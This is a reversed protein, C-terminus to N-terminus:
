FTLLQILLRRLARMDEQVWSHIIKMDRFFRLRVILHALLVAPIVILTGPVVDVGYHQLTFVASVANLFLYPIGFLLTSPSLRYLFYVTAVVWGIHMSPFATINLISPPLSADLSLRWELFRGITPNPDYLALVEQIERPISLPITPSFFTVSPSMAPFVYWLPGSVVLCLACTLLWELLLDGRRVLFFLFTLLLILGLSEYVILLFPSLLDFFEKFVNGEQQFWFPLYVGFVARDAQLLLLSNGAVDFRQLPETDVVHVIFGAALIGVTFLIWRGLIGVLYVITRWEEREHYVCAKIVSFCVKWLLYAFLIVLGMGLSFQQHIGMQLYYLILHLVLSSSFPSILNFVNM